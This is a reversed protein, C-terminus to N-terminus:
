PGTGGVGVAAERELEGIGAVRVSSDPRPPGPAAPPTRVAVFSTVVRVELGLREYLRIANTNSIAAHLLVKEGRARINHAVARVLRAALGQGRHDADTCVASIETWGPPHLREGAMAVLRGGRHIGLYTGLEFTRPRFPGPETRAVLDLMEPADRATLVVAEEDPAADIGVDVMQVGRGNGTVTWDPPLQLDVGTVPVDVGPGVLAALDAWVEADRQDPLGVFVSVEPDYRRARGRVQAFREHPGTLAYWVPNGLITVDDLEVV